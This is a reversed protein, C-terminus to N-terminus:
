SSYEGEILSHLVGVVTDYLDGEGDHQENTQQITDTIAGHTQQIVLGSLEFTTYSSREAVHLRFCYGVQSWLWVRIEAQHGM